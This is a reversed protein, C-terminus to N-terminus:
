SYITFFLLLGFRGGKNKTIQIIYARCNRCWGPCIPCPNGWGGSYEQYKYAGNWGCGTFWGPCAGCKENKDPM